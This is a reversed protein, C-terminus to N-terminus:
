SQRAARFLLLAFSSSILAGVGISTSALISRRELLTERLTCRWRHRRRHGYTSSCFMAFMVQSELLLLCPALVLRRRLSAHHRRDQRTSVLGRLLGPHQARLHGGRGSHHSSNPALCILSALRHCNLSEHLGRRGSARARQEENLRGLRRRSSLPPAPASTSCSLATRSTSRACRRRAGWSRRRRLQVERNSYSRASRSAIGRLRSTM